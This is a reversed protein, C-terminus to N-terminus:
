PEGKIRRRLERLGHFVRSRATSENIAAIRAIEDYSLDDTFRLLLAERLPESLAALAREVRARREIGLLRELEGPGTDPTEALMADPDGAAVVLPRKARDRHANRTRNRLLTFLWVVFKGEARYASRHDWVSLWTEQALEKGLQEDGVHKTCFAIVRGAYRRVLVEFATTEGAASRRMLEDDSLEPPM